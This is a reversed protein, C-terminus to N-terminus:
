AVVQGLFAVGAAELESVAFICVDSRYVSRALKTWGSGLQSRSSSPPFGQTHGPMSLQGPCCFGLCPWRRKEMPQGPSPAFETLPGARAM